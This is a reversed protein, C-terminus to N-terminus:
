RCASIAPTGLRRSKGDGVKGAPIDAGEPEDAVACPECAVAVSLVTPITLLSKRAIARGLLEASISLFLPRM